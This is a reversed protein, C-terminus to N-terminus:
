KALNGRVLWVRSGRGLALSSNVVAIQDDRVALKRMLRGQFSGNGGGMPDISGPVLAPASFTAGGDRSVAYALGRPAETHDPYLEWVVHLATGEVALSPYAASEADAPSPRSLTRPADFTRAGDRSRTYRVDFRDFPGGRSEAYALHLTGGADVALKPADSYTASPAVIV